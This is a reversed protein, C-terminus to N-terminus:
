QVIRDSEVVLEPQLTTVERQISFSFSGGEIRNVSGSHFTNITQINVYWKNIRPRKYGGAQSSDNIM